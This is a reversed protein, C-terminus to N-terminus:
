SQLNLVREYLKVYKGAVIEAAYEEMIIKRAAKGMEDVDSLFLTEYIGTALSLSNRIEALFGTQKHTIVDAMSGTRFAIVPTGCALVDTVIDPMTNQLSPFVFADVANYALVRMEVNSKDPVMRVPLPINMKVLPPIKGHVVLEVNEKFVPFSDILINLAEILYRAGKRLDSIGSACFLLLKKDKPLGLKKRSKKKDAIFFESVNVPKPIIDIQKNRLLSSESSLSRLWRNGAVPYIKTKSYIKKKTLFQKASIDNRGPKILFPCFACRELFELCMGSFYCGGTFPWMDYLTWVIPKGTSFLNKLGNLSVFGGQIEHLHIIDASKVEPHDSVDIGFSSQSFAGTFVLKKKYPIVTIKDVLPATKLKVSIINGGDIPVEGDESVGNRNVLMVSEIDAKRLAKNLRSVSIDTGKGSNANNIHVVKM